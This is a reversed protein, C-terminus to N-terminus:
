FLWNFFRTIIGPRERDSLLGNGVYRIKADAIRTSIVTNDSSIDDPRIRGELEIDQKENNFELSQSGHILLEGTETIDVISVSVSAVFKGTRTLTGGGDFDSNVGLNASEQSSGYSASLGMSTSKDTETGTSSSATATEYILVTLVQGKKYSRVDGVFPVYTSEDYMGQAFLPKYIIVSLLILIFSSRNM